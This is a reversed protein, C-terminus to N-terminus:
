LMCESIGICSILGMRYHPDKIIQVHKVKKTEEACKEAQFHWLDMIFAWKILSSGIRSILWHWDSQNQATGEPLSM